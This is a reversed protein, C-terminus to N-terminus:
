LHKAFILLCSAYGISAFMIGFVCEIPHRKIMIGLTQKFYEWNFGVDFNENIKNGNEIDTSDSDGSYTKSDISSKLENKHYNNIKDIQGIEKENIDENVSTVDHEKNEGKEKSRIVMIYYHKILISFPFLFSISVSAFGGLITIVEDIEPFLIALLCTLSLFSVSFIINVKESPETNENDEPLRKAYFSLMYAKLANFYIPIKFLLAWFLVIKAITMLFDHNFLKYRNFILVPTGNPVSLYGFVGIMLYLTLLTKMTIKIIRKGCSFVVNFNKCSNQELADLNTNKDDRNNSKNSSNYNANNNESILHLEKGKMKVKKNKSSFEPFTSKSDEFRNKNKSYFSNFVNLLNNQFALTFIINSISIFFMNDHFSETIDFVNILSWVSENDIKYSSKQDVHQISFMSANVTNNTSSMNAETNNPTIYTNNRVNIINAMYYPSEFAILLILYFM